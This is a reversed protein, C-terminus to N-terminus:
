FNFPLLSVNSRGIWGNEEYAINGYLERYCMRLSLTHDLSKLTRYWPKETSRLRKHSNKVLLIHGCHLVTTCAISSTSNNPLRLICHFTSFRLTLSLTILSLTQLALLFAESVHSCVKCLCYCFWVCTILM